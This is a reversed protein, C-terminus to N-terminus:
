GGPSEGPDSPGGPRGPQSVTNKQFVNGTGKEVALGVTRNFAILNGAAADAGGIM